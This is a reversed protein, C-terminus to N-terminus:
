LINSTTWFEKGFRLSLSVNTYFFTNNLADVYMAYLPSTNNEKLTYM